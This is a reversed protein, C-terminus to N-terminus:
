PERETEPFLHKCIRRSSLGLLIAIVFAGIGAPADPLKAVTAAANDGFISALWKLMDQQWAIFFVVCFLLDFGHRGQHSRKTVYSTWTKQDDDVYLCMQGFACAIQGIIFWLFTTAM